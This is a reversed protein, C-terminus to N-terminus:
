KLDKSWCWVIIDMRNLQVLVQLLVLVNTITWIMIYESPLNMVWKFAAASVCKGFVSDFRPEQASRQWVPPNKLLFQVKFDSMFLHQTDSDRLYVVFGSGTVFYVTKVASILEGVSLGIFCCVLAVSKSPSLGPIQKMAETFDEYPLDAWFSSSGGQETVEWFFPFDRQDSPLFFLYRLM